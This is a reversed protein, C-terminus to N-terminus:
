TASTPPATGPPRLAELVLAAVSDDLHPPMAAARFPWASLVSLLLWAAAEPDLDTRIDGDAQGRRLLDALHGAIMLAAHRALEPLDTEATLAVADAFLAGHAGSPHRHPEAPHRHSEAPHSHPDALQGHPESAQGPSGPIRAPSDPAHMRRLHPSSLAHALVAAASGYQEILAPLDAHIDAAARDLVAAFLAAKSGFNQFVVPESVGVRAAVDSVKGARYGTATFVEAAAKL